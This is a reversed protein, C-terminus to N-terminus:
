TCVKRHSLIDQITAHVKLTFKEPSFSSGRQLSELHLKMQMATSALVTRIKEAADDNSEYCLRQDLVLERQAGENPVFPIIGAMIMEATAIGFAERTCASIGYRCRGLLDEKAAGYLGNHVTIWNKRDACLRSIKLSYPTRDFNGVLHLTVAPAYERVQELIFIVQEINKETAIRGLCVFANERQEWSTLNSFSGPVPPSIVRLEQRCYTGSWSATWRSNAIFFDELQPNRGSKGAIGEALRWYISRMFGQRALYEGSAFTKQLALNWTVDSLFHVAPVGWDIVRSATICLDYQPAIKRCYRYFCGLWLAGAHRWRSFPPYHVQIADGQISTGAVRNLEEVDWGGRTVIDVQYDQLLAQLMWMAAIEAGARGWYPHGILIRKKDSPM